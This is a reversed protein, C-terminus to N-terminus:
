SDWSQKLNLREFCPLKVLPECFTMVLLFEIVSDLKDPESALDLSTLFDPEVVFDMFSTCFQELNVWFACQLDHFSYM